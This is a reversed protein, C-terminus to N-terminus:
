TGEFCSDIQINSIRCGVTDGGWFLCRNLLKLISLNLLKVGKKDILLIGNCIEFLTFRVGKKSFGIGSTYPKNLPINFVQADYEDYEFSSEPATSNM